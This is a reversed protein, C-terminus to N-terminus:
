DNLRNPRRPLASSIRDLLLLGGAVVLGAPVSWLCVGAVVLGIPALRWVLQAALAVVAVLELLPATLRRRVLGLRLAV